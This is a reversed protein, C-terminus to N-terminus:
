FLKVCSTQLPASQLAGCDTYGQTAGTSLEIQKKIQEIANYDGQWGKPKHEVLMAQYRDLLRYLGFQQAIAEYGNKLLKALRNQEM